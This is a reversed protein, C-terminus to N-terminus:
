GPHRSLKRHLTARSIGLTRAAASVNGGARALARRLVAQEAGALDDEDPSGIRLLDNLPVPLILPAWRARAASDAGVVLGHRDVALLAREGDPALVMAAPFAATFLADEIRQAAEAVAATLLAVMGPGHDARCSSADLAGVPVGDPGHLPATTCSLGVALEHFHQDRHVTLLRDEALSTGIGNTGAHAEDWITGPWLGSGQFGADDAVEGRRELVLGARDSLVVCCGARGVQRFLREMVPVGVHLLLDSAERARTLM